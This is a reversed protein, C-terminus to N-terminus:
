TMWFIKIGCDTAGGGAGWNAFGSNDWMERHGVIEDTDGVRIWITNVVDLSGASLVLAYMTSPTTTFPTPFTWYNWQMVISAGSVGTSTALAPLVLTDGSLACIYATWTKGSIDGDIASVKFGVKCITRAVGGDNWHSHGTYLLGGSVRVEGVFQDSIVSPASDAPCTLAPTSGGGTGAGSRIAQLIKDRTIKRSDYFRPETSPYIIAAM